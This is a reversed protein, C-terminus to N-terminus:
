SPNSECDRGYLGEGSTVTLIVSLHRLQQVDGMMQVLQQPSPSASGEGLHVTCTVIASTAIAGVKKSVLRLERLGHGTGRKRILQSLDGLSPHLSLQPIKIMLDPLTFGRSAM